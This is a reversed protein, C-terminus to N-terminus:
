RKQKRPTHDTEPAMPSGPRPCSEQEGALRSDHIRVVLAPATLDRCHLLRSRHGTHGAGYQFWDVTVSDLYLLDRDQLVGAVSMATACGVELGDSGETHEVVWTWTATARPSRTLLSM